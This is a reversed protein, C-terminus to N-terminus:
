DPQQCVTSIGTQPAGDVIISQTVEHCNLGAQQPPSGYPAQAQAYPSQGYASYYPPPAYACASLALLAASGIFASVIRMVRDEFEFILIYYTADGRTASAAANRGM